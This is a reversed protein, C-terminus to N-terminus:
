IKLLWYFNKQRSIQMKPLIVSKRGKYRSKKTIRLVLIFNEFYSIEKFYGKVCLLFIKFIM